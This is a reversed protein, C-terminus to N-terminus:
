ENETVQISIEAGPLIRGMERLTTQLINDLNISAGIKSSIEGIVQEKSARKQSELVLRANEAALAVREATAHIIAIEDETWQHGDTPPKIRLRGISKGRLQVPVSYADQPVGVQQGNTPQTLPEPKSGDFRYGVVPSIRKINSWAQSTLQRYATEAQALAERSEEYLRANQIATSVQDALVSLIDIDEQTFANPQTSQVDLAGIVQNGSMLPLAMESRTEPLDPNDFYVADSGTDLAIRPTGTSTVYGVIGTRGVELRHKRALMREGGKSNTARLVAFQKNEDLLFIGVHYFGFYQSIMRTIRPLLEEQEQITSIIRSVQAIAEFQEARHAVQQNATELEATREAVRQELGSILDRLQSTMANFANGLAGIEDLRKISVKQSLDGATVHEATTALSEIPEVIQRAALWGSGSAIAISALLLLAITLETRIIGAFAESTPTEAVVTFIQNSQNGLVIQDTALVVRNGNVGIHTGGQNPVTFFTNRLVVSPNNHAIVRNHSDVIYANSGEGLPMSALLNWVPEFRVSAVLVNTVTGTGIDTIPVSIFLFPEGTTEAFQVPSYYIRRNAKPVTFEPDTSRDGLQDVINTRSVVIQEIGNRSLLTLKDFADSFFLLESLLDTQQNHNMESFGRVQILEKLTIEQIQMYSAVQTSIRSARESQLEVEQRQDTQYSQWALVTGVAFLLSAALAVFTIALRTRISNKM